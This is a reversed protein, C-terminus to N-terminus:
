KRFFIIDKEQASVKPDGIFNLTEQLYRVMQNIQTENEKIDEDSFEYKGQANVYLVSLFLILFITIKKM